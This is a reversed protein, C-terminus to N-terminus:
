GDTEQQDIKHTSCSTVAKIEPTSKLDLHQEALNPAKESIYPPFFFEPPFTM